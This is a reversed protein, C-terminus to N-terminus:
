RLDEETADPWFAEADTLLIPVEPPNENYRRGDRANKCIRIAEVHTYRGATLLSPTYGRRDPGWWMSHENSWVVYTPLPDTLIDLLEVLENVSIMEAWRKVTLGNLAGISHTPHYTGPTESLFWDHIAHGHAKFLARGVRYADDSTQVILLASWTTMGEFKDMPPLDRADHWVISDARTM